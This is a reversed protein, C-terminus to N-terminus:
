EENHAEKRGLEEGADGRAGALGAQVGMRVGGQSRFRLARASM